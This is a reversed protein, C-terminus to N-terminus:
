KGKSVGKNVDGSTNCYHVNRNMVEFPFLTLRMIFSKTTIFFVADPNVYNLIVVITETM